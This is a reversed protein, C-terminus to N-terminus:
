FAASNQTVVVDYSAAIREVDRFTESIADGAQALQAKIQRETQMADGIEGLPDGNYGRVFANVLGEGSNMYQNLSDRSQEAAVKSEWAHIHSLYASRFEAPCGSTDIQRMRRVIETTVTSGVATQEDESLVAAIQVRFQERQTDVFPAPESFSASPDPPAAAGTDGSEQCGVACVFSILLGFVKFRRM